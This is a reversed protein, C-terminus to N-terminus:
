RYRLELLRTEPQDLTVEFSKGDALREGTQLDRVSAPRPLNVRVTRKGEYGNHIMMMRNDVSLVVPPEAYLHVGAFRALNVLAPLDFNPVGCWVSKWSGFDKVGYATKGDAASLFKGALGASLKSGPRYILEPTEYANPWVKLGIGTLREMAGVDLGEDTAYGPAYFWSLTRGGRKLGDIAKREEPTFYTPNIFVYLRYDPLDKRCLDGSVIVDHPAGLFPFGNQLLLDNSMVSTDAGTTLLDRATFSSPM